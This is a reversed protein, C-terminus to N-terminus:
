PYLGWIKLERIASEASDSAHVTNYTDNLANADRYYLCEERIHQITDVDKKTSECSMVIIPGSHMYRFLKPYWDKDIHEAYHENIKRADPNKIFIYEDIEIGRMHLYTCFNGFMNRHLADPKLIVLSRNSM